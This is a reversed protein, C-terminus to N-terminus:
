NAPFTKRVQGILRGEGLHIEIEEDACVQAANRIVEKTAVRLTVSYGRRLVALPSFSDLLSFATRLSQGSAAIRRNIAATMNKGCTELIFRKQRLDAHPGRQYMRIRLHRLQDTEHSLKQPLRMRLRESYDELFLRFDDMKPCLMRLRNLFNEGQLRLYKVTESHSRYIRLFLGNLRRSLEERAPVVLEAAASPTPARLDATFDAITYDTEHGIASIIPVSSAFVARAVQEDNFPSLDELSGGGRALIIVDVKGSRSLIYIARALEASAGGGQVRSPFILIPVAPFRRGTVQLIDRIVAGTPSTIVGIREPLLPIPKKHEEAFLGEEQLRKKLQEFALQLAGIGRPEVTDLIIQYDGRPPYVSIRGRCVVRMGEELELARHRTLRSSFTHSFNKFWVARIQAKDDKLTFYIHGSAPRYLNSIEGEVWVSDFNIELLDKIKETLAAVTLINEMM